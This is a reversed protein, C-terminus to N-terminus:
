DRPSVVIATCLEENDLVLTKIIVICGDKLSENGLDLHQYWKQGASEAAVCFKWKWAVKSGFWMGLLVSSQKMECEWLRVDRTKAPQKLDNRRDGGWVAGVKSMDYTYHMYGGRGNESRMEVQCMSKTSVVGWKKAWLINFIDNHEIMLNSYIHM